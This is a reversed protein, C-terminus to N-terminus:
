YLFTQTNTIYGWAICKLHSLTLNEISIKRCLYVLEYNGKGNADSEGDFGYIEDNSSDTNQFM